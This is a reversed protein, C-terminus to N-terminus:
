ETTEVVLFAAERNEGFPEIIFDAMGAESISYDKAWWGGLQAARDPAM